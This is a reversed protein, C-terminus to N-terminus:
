GLLYVTSVIGSKPRKELSVSTTKIYMCTTEHVQNYRHVFFYFFQKICSFLWCHCHLDPNFYCFEPAPEAAPVLLSISAMTIENDSDHIHTGFSSVPSKTLLHRLLCLLSLVILLFSDKRNVRQM